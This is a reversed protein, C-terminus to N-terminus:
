HADAGDADLVDPPVSEWTGVGPNWLTWCKMESLHKGFYWINLICYLLITVVNAVVNQM